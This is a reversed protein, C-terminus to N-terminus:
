SLALQVWHLILEFEFNNILETLTNILFTQSTPIQALLSLLKESDGIQTEMALQNLLEPPLTTLAQVIVADQIEHPEAKHLKSGEVRYKVGLHKKLMEWILNETVPKGVFDDCGAIIAKQREEEFVSASVAIIKPFPDFNPPTTLLTQAKKARIEQTAQYGNIGSMGMDMWILHPNYSEVLSLAKEGQDAEEVDFGVSRLLKALWQGNAQSDEVILIRYQPQQPDLGIVQYRPQPFTLNASDIPQVCITFEFCSGIGLQSNVTIEGGMLEVFRRSIPLGLGTGQEFKQGSSTQVFADFITELEEPTMGEGTDQVQFQIRYDSPNSVPNLILDLPKIKLTISGQDTFKIANDLLNILVQRLKREDTQLYQPLNPSREVMLQLGKSTARLEFTDKVEEVFQYLDFIKEELTMRNAEIKSISLIDNILQLLHEGNRNVINLKERHHSALTSDRVMLQTFGLIANLPTRLEHSMNTLFTSKARSAMEAQEKAKQLEFETQKQQTLDLVFAVVQHVEELLTIGIIVPIRTGNKHLYENEHLPLVKDTLIQKLRQQYVEQRYDPIIVDLHLQGTELEERSYGLMQLFADNAEVIRSEFDTFLIGIINAEILHRWKAESQRLVLEANKQETIDRLSGAMSVPNGQEDRFAEGRVQVWIYYGLKHLWRYEILYPLNFRLHNEIDQFVGQRDDPHIFNRFRTLTPEFENPQYGIMEFFRPSYWIREQNVDFWDWIGDNSGKIAREFRQESEKLAQEAQIRQTIDQFQVVFYLPQNQRDQVLGVSLLGSVLHGNKHILRQELTYTKRKEKLTKEVFNFDKKFDESFTIEDFTLKLLEAESYGLIKCIAENVQLFKCEISIIFMGIATNTFASRFREESQRLAEEAHQRATVDQVFSLTSTLNGEQDFLGSFFWECVLIEGTKTYNRNQIKLTSVQGSIMQQIGQDVTEKDEEYIMSFDHNSLGIVEHAKWGFIKEAQKSWRKIKVQADWEIIALPSNEFHQQIQELAVQLSRETKKIYTTDLTTGVIRYIKSELDKLPTLSTYWFREVGNLVVVEEYSISTGADLCDQYHQVIKEWSPLNLEQPTKGLLLQRPFGTAKEHAPNTGVYYFEGNDGVEVVFIPEDVGEYISRLLQEQNKLTIEVQRRDTVDRLTGLLRIVQKQQPDFIPEGQIEIYCISGDCRVIRLEAALSKKAWLPELIEQRYIYRDDPYIYQLIENGQPPKLSSDLGYVQYVEPSWITTQTQYNFEWISLKSIQQAQRLKSETKRHKLIELKLQVLANQLQTNMGKFSQVLEGIEDRRGFDSLHQIEGEAIQKAAKNVVLIPKIIWHSTLIGVGISLFFIGCCVFFTKKLYTHVEAMFDSQPIVVIALLDLGYQDKLFVVQLFYHNSLSGLRTPPITFDVNQLTQVEQFSGFKEILFKGLQNLLLDESSLLNIKKLGQDDQQYNKGFSRAVLNGQRDILIVQGSKGVRIHSLFNSLDFSVIGVSFVGLLEGTMPHDIPTNLSFGFDEQNEVAYFSGWSTKRKKVADQYWPRLTVSPKKFARLLRIPKGTHDIAYDYILSSDQPSSRLIRQGKSRTVSIFNHQENGWSIRSISKFNQLNLFLQHELLSLNKLDINEVKWYDLTLNTITKATETLQQLHDEVRYTVEDMLERSIKEIARQGSLFSLYGIISVTATIQIVFPFILVFRLPIRRLTQSILRSHFFSFFNSM